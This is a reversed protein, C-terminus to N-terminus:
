PLTMAVRFGGGFGPFGRSSVDRSTPSAYFRFASRCYRAACIWNGGRLVRVSGAPAGKPDSGSGPYIGYWDLCWEYVNGHMDYLGWANALFSGVADTGSDTSCSQSFGSGLICNGGYRGLLDMRRDSQMDTLDYGSNLATSAGARCAYEWQAETPLDFSAMGTKARLKGMFSDAHVTSNMPWDAAPDDSNAPNERIDFYSVQEVPRTAYCTANNFFSPMNGMVLEWQRQTVAFVGVFFGQTLTVAHQTEGSEHGLEGAPSGMTFTGAQVKRLVLKFTKYEDTWGDGPVASLYSVPYSSASPGGSLDVVLYDGDTAPPMSNTVSAVVKYFCSAASVGVTAVNQGTGRAVIGTAGPAGMHWAGTPANAWEVRYVTATPIENFTLRGTGDFSQIALDGAGAAFALGLLATLIRIRKM